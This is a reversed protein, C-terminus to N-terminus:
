SGGGALGSLVDNNIIYNRSFSVRSKKDDPRFDNIESTVSLSDAELDANSYYYRVEITMPLSKLVLSDDPSPDTYLPTFDDTTSGNSNMDFGKTNPVAAAGQKESSWSVFDGPVGDEKLYVKVVGRALPRLNADHYGKKGDSTILQSEKAYNSGPEPVEFMLYLTGTTSNLGSRVPFGFADELSSKMEKIYKVLAKSSGDYRVGIDRKGAKGILHNFQHTVVNSAAMYIESERNLMMSSMGVQMVGLLVIVMITLAIMVEILTFGGRGSSRLWSRAGYRCKDYTTM